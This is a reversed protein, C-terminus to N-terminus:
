DLGGIQCATVNINIILKILYNGYLTLQKFPLPNPILM